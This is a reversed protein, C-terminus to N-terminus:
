SKPFKRQFLFWSLFLFEVVKNPQGGLINKKDIVSSIFFIVDEVEEAEEEEVAAVMALLSKESSALTLESVAFLTAMQLFTLNRQFLTSQKSLPLM